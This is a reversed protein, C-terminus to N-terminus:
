REMWAREAAEYAIDSITTADIDEWAPTDFLMDEVHGRADETAAEYGREVNLGQRAADAIITAYERELREVKQEYQQEATM